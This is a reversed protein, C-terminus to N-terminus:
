SSRDQNAPIFSRLRELMEEHDIADIVFVTFHRYLAAKVMIPRSTRIVLVPGKVGSIDLAGRRRQMRGWTPAEDVSIVTELPIEVKMHWGRRLTLTSGFVDHTTLLPSAGLVIIAVGLVLALTILWVPDSAGMTILLVFAVAVIMAMLAAEVGARLRSYEIIVLRETGM